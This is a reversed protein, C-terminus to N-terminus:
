QDSLLGSREKLGRPDRGGILKSKYDIPRSWSSIVSYGV